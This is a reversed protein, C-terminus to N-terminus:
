KLKENYKRTLISIFNEIECSKQTSLRKLVENFSVYITRELILNYRNEVPDLTLNYLFWGIDSTEEDLESIGQFVRFNDYFQSEVAVALRKKWSSFVTGKVTLQHELRKFSSLWDPRPYNQGSWGAYCKGEPDAMYDNFTNRINGSIYVAQIELGGFNIIQNNKTEIIVLDINGVAQGDKDQLRAESVFARNIANPLLFKESDSVVRWEQRFRVPCIIIPRGNEKMSCVGLPSNTKDKTCQPVKNNFPCLKNQRHHVAQYSFNDIPFGFVECLPQSM